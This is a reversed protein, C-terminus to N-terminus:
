LRGAEKTATSVGIKKTIVKGKEESPGLTADISSCKTRLTM